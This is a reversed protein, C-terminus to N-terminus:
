VKLNYKPIYYKEFYHQTLGFNFSNEYRQFNNAQKRLMNFSLKTPTTTQYMRVFPM